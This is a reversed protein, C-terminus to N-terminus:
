RQGQKTPKPKNNNNNDNSKPQSGAHSNNERFPRKQNNSRTKFCNLKAHKGNCGICTHAWNCNTRNCYGHNNYDYCQRNSKEQKSQNAMNMMVAKNYYHWNIIQWPHLQPNIARQRRFEEDYVRWAVSNPYNNHMELLNQQYTWLQIAEQAHVEGIVSAYRALASLWQTFNLAKGKQKNLILAQDSSNSDDKLSIQWSNPNPTRSLLTAFDIYENAWIQAKVKADVSACLSQGFPQSAVSQPMSIMLSQMGTGTDQGTASPTSLGLASASHSHSGVAPPAPSLPGCALQGPLVLGGAQHGSPSSVSLLGCSHEGGAGSQDTTPPSSQNDMRAEMRDLRDMIATLVSASQSSDAGDPVVQQQGRRKRATVTSPASDGVAPLQRKRKPMQFEFYGVNYLRISVLYIIGHFIIWGFVMYEDLLIFM